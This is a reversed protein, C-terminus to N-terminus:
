YFNYYLLQFAKHYVEWNNNTELNEIAPEFGRSKFNEKGLYKILEEFVTLANLVVAPDSCSLLSKAIDPFEGQLLGLKINEGTLKMLNRIYYSAEILGNTDILQLNKLSLEFLPHDILQYLQDTTGAVINSLTFYIHRASKYNKKELVLFIQTLVDYDILKQTQRTSGCSCLSIIKLYYEELEEDNPFSMIEILIEHDMFTDLVYVDNEIIKSIIKLGKIRFKMNNEKLIGKLFDFVISIEYETFLDEHICFSKIIKLMGRRWIDPNIRKNYECVSEFSVIGKFVECLSRSCRLLKAMATFAKACLEDSESKKSIEVFYLLVSDPCKEFLKKDDIEIMSFLFKFTQLDFSCNSIGNLALEDLFEPEIFNVLFKSCNECQMDICIQGFFTKINWSEESSQNQSSIFNEEKILECNKNLSNLQTIQNISSNYLCMNKHRLKDFSDTRKKKRLLVSFSDSGQGPKGRTFKLYERNRYSFYDSM